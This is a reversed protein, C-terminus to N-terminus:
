RQYVRSSVTTQAMSTETQEHANPGVYREKLVITVFPQSDSPYGGNTLIFPSQLPRVYVDFQEVHIHKATLPAWTNGGDTSLALCAVDATDGCVAEGASSLRIIMETGNDQMLRIQSDRPQINALYSVPHNRVARVLLELTFRLDQTLISHNAIKRHLRTFSAFTQAIILMSISFLTVVILMELLSFGPLAHM